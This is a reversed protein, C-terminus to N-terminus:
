RVVTVTHRVNGGVSKAIVTATKGDIQLVTYGFEDDNAYLITSVSSPDEGFQNVEHGGNGNVIQMVGHTLAFNWSSGSLTGSAISGQDTEDNQDTRATIPKFLQYTHTHGSFMFDVQATNMMSKYVHRTQEADVHFASLSFWNKHVMMIIWDITGATRLAVADNLRAQVWNYQDGGVTNIQPDQSNMVIIYCNRVQKAQLWDLNDDPNNLGPFWAEIQNEATQSESEPHEHNGQALMLKGKLVSTNFYSSMMSIWNTSDNSYPGDGAFLYQEVSSESMIQNLVDEADQTTDNDGWSILKFASGSPPPPPPPPPNSGGGGSGTGWQVTDGAQLKRWHLGGGYPTRSNTGSNRVECDHESPPNYDGLIQGTDVINYVLRWGNKPKGDTGIPDTDVWMMLHIGGHDVDGGPTVPHVLWKLGISNGNMSKGINNMLFPVNFYNNGPTNSPHPREVQFQVAGNARIGTDYWCCCDGDEQYGCPASHNPGWHKLAFHGDSSVGSFNQMIMTVEYGYQDVNTINGSWRDDDATNRTQAIVGQQGTAAYWRIGRSDLTGGTGTGGGGPPTTGPPPNNVDNLYPLTGIKVDKIRLDPRPLESNNNRIYINHRKISAPGAIIQSTDAYGTPVTGPNWNSASWTRDTQIKIWGDGDGFDLWANQVVTNTIRNVRITAAVKYTKGIELERGGPYLSTIREGFEGTAFTPDSTDVWYKVQSNSQNTFGSPTTPRPGIINFMFGGFILNTPTIGTFKHNGDVVHFSVQNEYVFAFSIVTNFGPKDDATFRAKKSYNFHVGSVGDTGSQINIYGNSIVTNSVGAGNHPAIIGEVSDYSGVNITQPTNQTATSDYYWEVGALPDVPGPPFPPNGSIAVCRNQAPEWRYNTPCQQLSIVCRGLTEDWNFGIPCVKDGTPPPTAGPRSLTFDDLVQNANTIFQFRLQNGSDQLTVFVSGYPAPAHRFGVFNEASGDVETHSSRGAAGSTCYITGDVNIYNGTAQDSAIIPTGPNAAEFRVPKSRFYIHNHGNFVINVKHQSFLAHYANRFDTLGGYYTATTFSPKHYCVIKWKIAPDATAKELESKVFAYQASSTGYSSQTDMMIFRINKRTFAYYGTTPILPFENIVSTRDSASGDESDDHNGLIPAVHEPYITTGLSSEMNDFWCSQDGDQYSFDGLALVLGVDNGATKNLKSGMLAATADADGSCSFDGAAAFTWNPITPPPTSPPVCRQTANDYTYGNPCIIVTADDVCRMQVPDWKSGSPCGATSPPPDTPDPLPQSVTEPEREGDLRIVAFDDGISTTGTKVYWRVWLAIHDGPYLDGINPEDPAQLPVEFFQMPPEIGEDIIMPETGNIGSSGLSIAIGTDPSATGTEIWIKAGLLKRTQSTNRLYVCRYEVDGNEAEATDVRDFLGNLSGSVLQFSSIDGGLSFAPDSNFYGGSLYFKIDEPLIVPTPTTTTSSL